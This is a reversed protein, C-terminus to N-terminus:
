FSSHVSYEFIYNGPKELDPKWPPLDTVTRGAALQVNEYRKRDVTKGDIDRAVVFVDVTKAAGMNLVMVPVTDEPGYVIDVNKSGALVPQYAMRMAHYAMKAYGLYDVVPKRYTATNGGGHLPCWNTGDYGLWRKKRYPEIVALAQWAQSEAFEDFSLVRGISGQYYKREYSYLHYNPQGRHLRWNPQAITEESEFDFWAHTDSNLYKVRVRDPM